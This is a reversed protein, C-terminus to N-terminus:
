AAKPRLDRVRVALARLDPLKLFRRTGLRRNM